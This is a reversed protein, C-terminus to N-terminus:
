RGSVASYFQPFLVAGLTKRMFDDGCAGCALRNKCFTIQNEPTMKNSVGGSVCKFCASPNFRIHIKLNALASAYGAFSVTENAFSSDLRSLCCKHPIKAHMLMFQMDVARHIDVPGGLVVGHGDTDKHILIPQVSKKQIM